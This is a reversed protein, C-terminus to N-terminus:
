TFGRADVVFSTANTTPLHDWVYQIRACMDNGGPTTLTYVYADIFVGDPTVSTTTGKSILPQGNFQGYTLTGLTLTSWALLVFSRFLAKPSSAIKGM